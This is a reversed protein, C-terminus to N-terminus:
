VTPVLVHCNSPVVHFRIWPSATMPDPETVSPFIAALATVAPLIALLATVSAFILAPATVCSFSAEPKDPIVTVVVAKLLVTTGVGKVPCNTNRVSVEANCLHSPLEHTVAIVVTGVPAGVPSASTEAVDDVAVIEKEAPGSPPDAIVL